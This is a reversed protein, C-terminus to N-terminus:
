VSADQCALKEGGSQTNDPVGMSKALNKSLGVMVIPAMDTSSGDDVDVGMDVDVDVGTNVDTNVGVNVDANVGVSVEPGASM